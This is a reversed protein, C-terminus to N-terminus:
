LAIYTTGPISGPNTAHLAYSKIRTEFHHTKYLYQPSSSIDRNLTAVISIRLFSAQSKTCAIWGQSLIQGQATGLSLCTAPHNKKLNRPYKTGGVLHNEEALERRLQAVCCLFSFYLLTKSVADSSTDWRVLVLIERSFFFLSIRFPQM